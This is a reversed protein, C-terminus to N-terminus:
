KESEVEAQKDITKWLLVMDSEIKQYCVPSFSLSQLKSVYDHDSIIWRFVRSQFKELKRMYIISPQWVSCRLYPHLPRPKSVIYTEEKIPDHFARKAKHFLFDKQM